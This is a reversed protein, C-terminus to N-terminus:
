VRTGYVHSLIDRAVLEASRLGRFRTFVNRDVDYSSGNAIATMGTWVANKAWQATIPNNADTAILLVGPNVGAVRELDVDEYPKESQVAVTLGLANLVAGDFSGSTHLRLSDDRAVALQFTRTETNPILDAYGSMTKDHAALVAEGKPEDGLADAITLVGDRIDKYSGERSNLVVTPAIASLQEYIASHRDLDAIILDPALSAIIEQNPESRTGVSDYDIKDGALQTVRSEDDDDAIGVPDVGLVLLTDVFSFELAVVREPTGTIETEGLEHAISRQEASKTSPGASAGCGTAALLLAAATFVATILRVPRHM